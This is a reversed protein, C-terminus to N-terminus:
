EGGNAIEEYECASIHLRGCTVRRDEQRARARRVAAILEPSALGREADDAVARAMVAVIYASRGPQAAIAELEARLRDLDELHSDRERRDAM